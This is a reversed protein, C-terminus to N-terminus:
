RKSLAALIPAIVTNWVALLLLLGPGILVVKGWVGGFWARSIVGHEHLQQAILDPLETRDVKSALEKRVEVIAVTAAAAEATLRERERDSEWGAKIRAM